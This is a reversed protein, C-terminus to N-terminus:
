WRTRPTVEVSDAPAVGRRRDRRAALFHDRCGPGKCKEIQRVSEFPRPQLRHPRFVPIGGAASVGPSGKPGAGAVRRKRRSRSRDSGSPVRALEGGIRRETPGPRSALRWSMRHVLRFGSLGHTSGTRRCFSFPDSDAYRALESGDMRNGVEGWRMKMRLPSMGTTGCEM